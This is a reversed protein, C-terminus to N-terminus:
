ASAAYQQQVCGEVEIVVVQRGAWKCSYRGSANGADDRSNLWGALIVVLTVGTSVEM